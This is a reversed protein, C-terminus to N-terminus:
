YWIRFSTTTTASFNSFTCVVDVYILSGYPQSNFSLPVMGVGNTNTTLTIPEVRGDPWHVTTKCSANAVPQLNQDQVIVFILQSDTALTVAKWAFARVQLSIINTNTSDLPKVPSLLGIDEGLADFYMRGLDSVVVRQGEVKWPQWELRTKEFYQVIKNEHYEFGSIPYGFQSVGGYQDFFELFAFCVPYGTEPYTRCAFTNSANLPGTSVYTLRGLQTVQVRQGEPLDARYEFRARQFYQVTKGDKSTIEETIPYGYLFTANPNSNYFKLFDGKVNHGTESFYKPYQEPTQAHVPVWGVSLLCLTIFVALSQRVM